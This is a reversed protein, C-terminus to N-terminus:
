IGKMNASSKIVENFADTDILETSLDIYSRSRLHIHARQNALYDVQVYTASQLAIFQNSLVRATQV